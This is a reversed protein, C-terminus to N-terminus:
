EAVKERASPEGPPFSRNYPSRLALALKASFVTPNVHDSGATPESSGM